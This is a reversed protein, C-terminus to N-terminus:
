TVSIARHRFNLHFCVTIIETRASSKRVGDLLTWPLLRERVEDCGGDRSKVYDFLTNIWVILTICTTRSLYHRQTDHLPTSDISLSFPRIVDFIINFSIVITIALNTLHIHKWNSHNVNYCKTWLFNGTRRSLHIGCCHDYRNRNSNTDFM